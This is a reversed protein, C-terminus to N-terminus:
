QAVRNDVHSEVLAEADEAGSFIRNPKGRWEQDVLFLGIERKLRQFIAEAFCFLLDLECSKRVLQNAFGVFVCLGATALSSVHCSRPRQKYKRRIADGTALAM